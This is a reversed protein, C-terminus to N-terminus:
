NKDWSALGLGAGVLCIALPIVDVASVILEPPLNTMKHLYQGTPILWYDELAWLFIGALGLLIAFVRLRPRAIIQVPRSDRWYKFDGLM